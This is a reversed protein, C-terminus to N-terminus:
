RLMQTHTRQPFTYAITYIESGTYIAPALVRLREVTPSLSQFHFFISNNEKFNM